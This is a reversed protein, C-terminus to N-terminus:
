CNWKHVLSGDVFIGNSNIAINVNAFYLVCHADDLYELNIKRDPNVMEIKGKEFGQKM